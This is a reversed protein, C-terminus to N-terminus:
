IFDRNLLSGNKSVKTLALEINKNLEKTKNLKHYLLMCTVYADYLDDVKGEVSFSIKYKSIINSIVEEKKSNGSGTAAFKINAPSITIFPIRMNYLALKIVGHLEGLQYISRGQSGYSYDEIAVYQINYQRIIRLVFGRITRIKELTRKYVDLKKNNNIYFCHKNDLARKRSTTGIYYDVLQTPKLLTSLIVLGPSNLSLDIGLINM